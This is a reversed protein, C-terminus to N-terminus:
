KVIYPNNGTGKGSSIITKKNLSIVPRVGYGEFWFTKNIAEYDIWVALGVSEDKSTNCLWYNSMFGSTKQPASFMEYGDQASVKVTYKKTEKEKGYNIVKNYVPVSMEYNVILSTDFYQTVRNNIYYGVNGQQKPNYETKKEDSYDFTVLKIMSRLPEIAVVKTPKNDEASIIRWIIGSYQIYEGTVRTNLADGGKAIKLDGINYPDEETGNGSIIKTDGKITLVPRIDYNEKKNMITFNTNNVQKHRNFSLQSGYATDKDKSNATWALSNNILFTGGEGKSKNIDSISPLYAYREKTTSDCETTDLTTDTLQQNCYKNKVLYKKSEETFQNLYYEDLWKDIGDYNILSIDENSVIKVNNGDVGIIRFDMGSFRFYNNPNAGTYYGTKTAAKVTDKLYEEVIIKRTKVTKNKLNDFAIYEIEYEGVKSTDLDSRIEVSSIDKKGDKTDTVSHVGPDNFKTGKSITIEDEGNLKITPGKHDISSEIVGCKLYVYHKYKGNEQRTKVWSNKLDCPKDTYPIYIDEKIYSGTYLDQLTLTKVRTGAPLRQSNIEYYREAAKLMKGEAQKFNISPSIVLFWVFLVIIAIVILFKLKGIYKKM